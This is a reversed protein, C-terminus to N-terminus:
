LEQTYQLLLRITSTTQGSLKVEQELGLNRSHFDEIQEGNNFELTYLYSQLNGNMDGLQPACEHNLIFIIKWGSIKYAHTNVAKYTHPTPSSKVHIDNNLAM